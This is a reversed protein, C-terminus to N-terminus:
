LYDVRADLGRSRLERSRQEAQTRDSFSGANVYNGLRSEAPFANPVYQRVINLTDNNYIPVVVVYRNNNPRNAVPSGNLGLVQWTQLDVIGTPKLQYNQQFTIISSRTYESFYGDPYGNYYGLQTLRQQLAKVNEGSDGVSIYNRNPENQNAYRDEWARRVAELIQSDAIGDAYLRYDQQFRRLADITLPSVNGTPNTNFYGLDRLRQQLERIQDTSLSVGPPNPEQSTRVLADWTQRNAVGNAPLGSNRQFAIVANKTISGFYGTPNPTFYGRQKLLQQLRTVASGNSNESLVPYDGDGKGEDRRVLIAQKTRSGVIGDARLRSAQQFKIVAQQTDSGFYSDVRGNFYGLERLDQQLKSVSDGRSGLRLDGIITGGSNRAQCAQQLSALTSIGVVGDASLRNARQFGIVAKQTLSAFNGTVPGNFYGLKKLCRQTSTVDNGRSGLKQLAMAQEAISLVGITLAVFLFHMAAVSSFNRWNNFFKFNVGLPVVEISKSAEHTSVVGFNGITEM